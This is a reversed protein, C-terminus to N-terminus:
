KLYDKFQYKGETELITKSEGMALDLAPRLFPDAEMKVTGFEKYPAYDVATGVLTENDNEPKSIKRFSDVKHYSPPIEKAYKSPNELEDGKDKSQTNISAAMYGFRRAALEKAQGEVVLGIKYTSDSIIKQGIIKVESGNWKTAVKTSNSM